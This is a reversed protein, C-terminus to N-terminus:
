PWDLVPGGPYCRYGASLICRRKTRRLGLAVVDDLMPFRYGRLERGADPHRDLFAVGLRSDYQLAPGCITGTALDIPAALGGQTLNAAAIRGAPVRIVAPMIDLSGSPARCTVIRINSLVENAIPILDPHNRLRPQVVIRGTRSLECLYDFLEPPSLRRDDVANVFSQREAEYRWALVGHGLAGTAPKSILDGAPLASIESVCKGEAFEALLPISPLGAQECRRAFLSKCRLLKFDPTVHRKALRLQARTYQHEFFERNRQRWREALYIQHQALAQYDAGSRLAEAFVRAFQM